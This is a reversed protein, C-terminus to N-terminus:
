VFIFLKQLCLKKIAQDGQSGKAEKVRKLSLSLLVSDGQNWISGMIKHKWSHLHLSSLFFFHFSLLFFWLLLFLSFLLTNTLAICLLGSQSSTLFCNILCCSCSPSLHPPPPLYWSFVTFLPSCYLALFLFTLTLLVLM